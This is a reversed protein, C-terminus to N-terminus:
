KESLEEYFDSTKPKLYNKLLCFEEFLKVDDIIIGKDRLFTVCPIIDDFQLEHNEKLIIWEFFQYCDLPKIWINIYDICERYLNKIETNISEQTDGNNEYKQFLDRVKLPVFNHEIRQFLSKTTEKLTCLVESISNKERELSAIRSHFIAMLSHLYWLYIENVDNEFFMKIIVPTKNTTLFYEKLALYLKLIREIAPFLSLWRTKSHYLLKEYNINIYDCLEKFKETRVTYVSFHNFIKM